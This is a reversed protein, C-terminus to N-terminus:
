KYHKEGYPVTDTDIERKFKLKRMLLHDCEIAKEALQRQLKLYRM